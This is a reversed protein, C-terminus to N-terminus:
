TVLTKEDRELQTNNYFNILLYNCKLEDTNKM